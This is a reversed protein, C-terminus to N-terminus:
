GRPPARPQEPPTFQIPPPDSAPATTAAARATPTAHMVAVVPALFVASPPRAVRERTHLAGHDAGVAEDLPLLVANERAPLDSAGQPTVSQHAVGHALALAPSAVGGVLTFLAFLCYVFHSPIGRRMPLLKTQMAVVRWWIYVCMRGRMM